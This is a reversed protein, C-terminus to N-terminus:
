KNSLEEIRICDRIFDLHIKSLALINSDLKYRIELQVLTSYSTEFLSMAAAKREGENKGQIEGSATAKLVAIEIDEKKAEYEFGSAQMKETSILVSDYAQKLEDITITM